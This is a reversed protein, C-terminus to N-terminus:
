FGKLLESKIQHYRKVDLKDCDIFELAAEETSFIDFRLPLKRAHMKSFYASLYQEPEATLFAVKRRAIFNELNKIHETYKKLFDEDLAVDADRIDIIVDYNPNFDPHKRMQDTFEIIDSRAIKGGIYQITVKLDSLIKYTLIKNSKKM